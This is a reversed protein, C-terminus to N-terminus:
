STGDPKTLIRIIEQVDPPPEDDGYGAAHERMYVNLLELVADALDPFDHAIQRLTYIAGLRVQLKPDDLQGVARNFLEAVHDRRSLAAQDLSARAQRNAAVVRMGGLILGIAAAALLGFNRVLESVAISWEM